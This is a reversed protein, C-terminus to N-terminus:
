GARRTTKATGRELLMQELKEIRATLDDTEVAKFALELVARAASVRAAERAEPDAMIEELADVARGAAQQLRTVAQSIAQQKAERYKEKFEPMQLWRLLTADGIGAQKAASTITNAQLLAIIAQEQKRSLKNGHGKM